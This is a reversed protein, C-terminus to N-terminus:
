GEICPAGTNAWCALLHSILGVVWISGRWAEYTYGGMEVGMALRM